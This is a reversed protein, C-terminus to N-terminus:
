ATPDMLETWTANDDRLDTWTAWRTTVDDWTWTTPTAASPRRVTVYPMVWNRRPEEGIDSLRVEDMDLVAIYGTEVQLGMLPPVNLLLVGADDLLSLLARRQEPTETAVTFKGAAAKRRGDTVVVASARGLPWFVGSKVSRTTQEFSGASFELPQSLNPLGPHVLWPVASDVTVPGSVSEPQQLTSYTVEVGFPAEPDYITASGASLDLPTGDNSRVPIIEGGQNRVVTVETIPPSGTDTVDIRMRPPHADPEATAVLSLTAM